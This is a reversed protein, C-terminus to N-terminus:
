SELFARSALLSAGSYACPPFDVAILQIGTMTGTCREAPPDAWVQGYHYSGMCCSLHARFLVFMLASVFSALFIAKVALFSM